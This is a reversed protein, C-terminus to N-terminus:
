PTTIYSGAPLYITNTVTAGLVTQDIIQLSVYSLSNTFNIPSGPGSQNTWTLLGGGYKWCGSNLSLNNSASSYVDQSLGNTLAALQRFSTNNYQFVGPITGPAYIAYAPRNSSSLEYDAFSIIGNQFIVNGTPVTVSIEQSICRMPKINGVLNNTFNYSSLNFGNVKVDYKRKTEFVCCASNAVCTFNNVVYQILATSVTQEFHLGTGYSLISLNNIVVNTVGTQPDASGIGVAIETNTLCPDFIYLGDISNNGCFYLKAHTSDGGIQFQIVAAPSQSKINVGNTVYTYLSTSTNTGNLIFLTSGYGMNFNTLAFAYDAVPAFQSTGSNTNNGLPPPAVYIDLGSSPMKLNAGSFDEVGNHITTGSNTSTGTFTGNNITLNFAVGNNTAVGGTGAPGQPGVGGGIPSYVRQCSNALISVGGQLNTAVYVGGPQVFGSVSEQNIGSSGGIAVYVNLSTIFPFNNTPSQNIELAGSGATAGPTTVLGVTVLLNSGSSNTYITNLVLDTSDVINTGASNLSVSNAAANANFQNTNFSQFTVNAGFACAAMLVFFAILYNRM